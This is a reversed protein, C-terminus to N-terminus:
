RSGGSDISPNGKRIARDSLPPQPMPEQFFFARLLAYVRESQSLHVMSGADEVYYVQLNPVAEWYQQVVGWDVPDCEGRILLSPVFVERLAKRPDPKVDDTVDGILGVYPNYGPWQPDPALERHEPCVM